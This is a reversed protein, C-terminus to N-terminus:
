KTKVSRKTSWKGYFTKNVGEVAMRKYTRIRVYYKKKKKLKKITKSTKSKKKITVTKPSKMKSNRSYQVQYGTVGSAKTWDIKISKKKGAKKVISTNSFSPRYSINYDISKNLFTSYAHATMYFYGKSLSISWEYYYEGQASSYGKKICDKTYANWIPQNLNNDSYLSLGCYDMVDKQSKIRYNIIGKAPIYFKFADYYYFGWGPSNEKYDNTTLEDSFSSDLQVTQARTSWGVAYATLSMPVLSIMLLVSLFFSILKKM